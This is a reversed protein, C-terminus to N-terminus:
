RLAEVTMHDTRSFYRLKKLAQAEIQRVRERTIGHKRGIGNLTEPTENRLGFRMEIVERENATLRELLEHLYRRESKEAVAALPSPSAEDVILDKLSNDDNDGVLVDLSFTEKAVEALSRAKKVSVRMKKAIEEANPERKLEQNLRRMVRTYRGLEETVHVPLRITRTQNMIAREISQKIWWTAYTSFRFGKEPLFKEVARILGLNGEEILDLFPLGRNIYKKAMSVVLRLNSEIMRAKAARDGGHVRKGLDQEEEFTLLPYKRIDRLYQKLADATLSFGDFAAGTEETSSEDPTRDVSAEDTVTFEELELTRM